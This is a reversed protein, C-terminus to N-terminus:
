IDYKEAVNHPVTSYEWTSLIELCEVYATMEGYVFQTRTATKLEDLNYTLLETLTLIIEKATKM